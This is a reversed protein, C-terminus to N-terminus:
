GLQELLSPYDIKGTNLHPLSELLYVRFLTHHLEYKNQLFYKAQDLLAPEAGEIWVGLLEDRGTVSVSVHLMNSLTTEIEDLGYRNGSLKIFRKIRGTVEFFGNENLCGIDGTRLIGQLEDGKTLDEPSEAYGMMVNPGRYILESSECDLSLQGGPIPIGISNLNDKLATPPVFSIRATAETQGYMVYFSLGKSEAYYLVSKKYREDLKGGAQTLMRLSPIDAKEFGARLFMKYWTPVGALSTVREQQIIRVFDRSMLSVNNLVLSAGAQLHSNIVSLGYSYNPPLTTLARDDPQIDLYQAISMANASLARYSLRVLKPSGTSGSTSLLLGLDPHLATKFSPSRWYFDNMWENVLNEHNSSRQIFIWDPQYINEIHDALAADLNLPLLLPVHGAQLCSLYAVLWELTNNSYIFGFLRSGRSRLFESVKSTKEALESYTLVRGCGDTCAIMDLNQTSLGWFDNSPDINMYNTSTERLRTSTERLCGTTLSM